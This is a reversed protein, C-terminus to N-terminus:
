PTNCSPTGNVLIKVPRFDADYRKLYSRFDSDASRLHSLLMSFAVATAEIVISVYSANDPGYGEHETRKPPTAPSWNCEFEFVGEERNVLIGCSLLMGGPRSRVLKEIALRSTTTDTGIFVMDGDHVANRVPQGLPDNLIDKREKFSSPFPRIDLGPRIADLRAKLADVKLSDIDFSSFPFVRNLTSDDVVDGDILDIDIAGSRVLMEAFNAGTGGCGVICFRMTRLKDMIDAGLAKATRDTFETM